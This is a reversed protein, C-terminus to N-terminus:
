VRRPRLARPLHRLARATPGGRCSRMRRRPWRRGGAAVRARGGRRSTPRPDTGKSASRPAGSTPAAFSTSRSRARPATSHRSSRMSTQSRRAASRSSSTASRSGSRAAPSDTEVERVLLGDRPPLGVAARMRRAAWAPAIAIGLHPREVTAGTALVEIRRRLAEDAPLALYFGNGVRNTNLGVLHGSADVLASGSSGPAMPATHEISGAIRRGRPGRFAQGVASVIGFTVRPGHRTAAVAFVPQGIGASADAFGPIVLQETEVRLLALDSDVDIGAVEAEATGGDAFVIPVRGGGNVNHANTLVQDSAVVVGSGGRRGTDIRVIAPGVTTAITGAAGALEELM